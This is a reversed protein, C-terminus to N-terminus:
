VRYCSFSPITAQWKCHCINLFSIKYIWFSAAMPGCRNSNKQLFQWNVFAGLIMNKGWHQVMGYKHIEWYDMTTGKLFLKYLRFMPFHIYLTLLSDNGAVIFLLIYVSFEVMCSWLVLCLFLMKMCCRVALFCWLLYVMFSGLYPLADWIIDFIGYVYFMNM